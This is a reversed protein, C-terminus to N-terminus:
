LDWNIDDDVVGENNNKEDIERIFGRRLAFM